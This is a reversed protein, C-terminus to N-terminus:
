GRSRCDSSTLAISPLLGETMAAFDDILLNPLDEEGVSRNTLPAPLNVASKAYIVVRGHRYSIETRNENEYPELSTERLKAVIDLASIKWGLSVQIFRWSDFRTESIQRMRM